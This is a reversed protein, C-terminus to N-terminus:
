CNPTCSDPANQTTDPDGDRLVCKTNDDPDIMCQKRDWCVHTAASETCNQQMVYGTCSKKNGGYYSFATGNNCMMIPFSGCLTDTGQCQTIIACCSDQVDGGGWLSFLEGSRMTRNDSSMTLSSAAIVASLVVSSILIARTTM